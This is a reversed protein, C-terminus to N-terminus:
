FSFCLFNDNDLSQVFNRFVLGFQLCLRFQVSNQVISLCCPQCGFVGLWSFKEM